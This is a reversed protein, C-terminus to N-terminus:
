NSLKRLADTFLIEKQVQTKRSYCYNNLTTTMDKHGAFKMIDEIPIDSHEALTSIVTRRLTHTGREKIGIKRCYKRLRKDVGGETLRMGDPNLFIYEENYGNKKNTEVALNIIDRAFGTLYIPRDEVTKTHPVIKIVSCKKNLSEDRYVRRVEQRQVVLYGNSIDSIKLASIEGGRLGLQLNLIVSLPASKKTKYFEEWAETIIGKVEDDTFVQYQADKRETQRFLRPNIKVQDLNSKEIIGKEIAYHLMGNIISIMNYYQKKTLDFAKITKLAWNRLTLCDISKLPIKSIDTNKYFRNWDNIYRSITVCGEEVDLKKYNVWEVFLSDLTDAKVNSISINYHKILTEVVEEYTKKKIIHRKSENDYVATCFRTDKGTMQTIPYKHIKLLEEILKKNMKKTEELAEEDTLIGLKVNENNLKEMQLFLNYIKTFNKIRENQLDILMNIHVM